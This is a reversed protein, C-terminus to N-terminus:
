FSLRKLLWDFIWKSVFKNRLEYIAKLLWLHHKNYRQDLYEKLIEKHDFALDENLVQSPHVRKFEAADDWAQLTWWVIRAKYVVSITHWRPDRLPDWKVLFPKDEHGIIEVDVWLEEKMEKKLTKWLSDGYEDKWGPLAWGYPPFKRKILIINGDEDEIIGDVAVVPNMWVEKYIKKFREFADIKDLYDIIEQPISELLVQKNEMRIQTRIISAKIPVRIELNIVPFWLNEFIKKVHPNWTIVYDFKPLHKIIYNSWLKDDGFDTIPYVDKPDFSLIDNIMNSYIGLMDYRENFTFPNNETYEKDASGIWFLVKTIWHSAAQRLADLTWFHAPQCRWILLATKEQSNM